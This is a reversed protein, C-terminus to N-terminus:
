QKEKGEKANAKDKEARKRLNDAARQFKDAARHLDKAKQELKDALTEDGTKTELPTWTAQVAARFSEAAASYTPRARYRFPPFVTLPIKEGQGHTAQSKPGESGTKAGLSNSPGQASSHCPEVTSICTPESSYTHPALVTVPLQQRQFTVHTTYPDPESNSDSATDLPEWRIGLGHQVKKPPTEQAQATQPHPQDKRATATGLPKWLTGPGPQAEKPTTGLPKWLTAPGPETKSHKTKDAEEQTSHYASNAGGTTMDNIDVSSFGFPGDKARHIDTGKKQESIKKNTNDM